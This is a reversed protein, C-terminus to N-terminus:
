SVTVEFAHFDFGDGGPTLTPGLPAATNLFDNGAGARLQVTAGGIKIAVLHQAEIGFVAADNAPLSGAAGGKIVISAIRSIAGLNDANDKVGAGTIKSDNANGFVDGGTQVGAILNLSLVDGGISVAGIQADANKGALEVDYGALIRAYSVGGGISIKGIALDTKATAGLGRQGRASIIVEVDDSVSNGVLGGKVTLSGIDDTVRISANKTPADAANFDLGTVISGGIFVSAIRAAEIYGSGDLSPNGGNLPTGGRLDGTIKVAGLDGISTIYGSFDGGGGIMSGGITISAIKGGSGIKATVDSNGGRLDGGIKVPGMDGTSTIQASGDGGGVLSGGIKVGALKGSSRILTSAQANGRVDGHIEVLGMDGVTSISGSNAGSGGLYSGGIKLGALKGQIQMVGSGSGGARFDGAIKILGMDGGATLTGFFVSDSIFSGGVNLGAIKGPGSTSLFGRFDGGVKVMGIMADSSLFGRMTGLVKVAGLENTLVSGLLDTLVTVVSLKGVIGSSTDPAGTDTGFRGLSSVNLAALGPTTLTADGAKIKGLDGRITVAGLDIGGGGSADIFGITALGDGRIQGNGFVDQPKATVTITAGKFVQNGALDIKQLQDGFTGVVAPHTFIADGPNGKSIKVTVLDGDVDTYTFLIAPAIRAELPEPASSCRPSCVTKM